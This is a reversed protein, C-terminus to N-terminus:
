RSSRDAEPTGGRDRDLLDLVTRAARDLPGGARPRFAGRDLARDLGRETRLHGLAAVGVADAIDPVTLGDRLPGRVLVRTRPRADGLTDLVRAGAACARVGAPVVLVVLDARRLVEGPRLDAARPLDCVVTRGARRGAGVVASVATDAPAVGTRDCSVVSLAGTGPRLAPLAADLEAQAVRGASVRVDPWRPGPEAEIGLLLDLGGGLPDCDLLLADTGSRAARAGVAAALVSAGAGGTAGVVALVPGRRDGPRDVVEGLAAALTDAGGPLVVVDEAGSEFARRWVDADPPEGCVLSVGARRPPCTGARAVAAPELLVLPAASWYPRAEALDTVTDLDCGVAAAIRTVRDRLDPEDSVLLPRPGDRGTRDGPPRGVPDGDGPGRGTHRDPTQM